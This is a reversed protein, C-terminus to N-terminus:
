SSGSIDSMEVLQSPESPGSSLADGRMAQFSARGATDLARVPERGGSPTREPCFSTLVRQFLSWGQPGPMGAIV